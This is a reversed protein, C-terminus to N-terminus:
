AETLIDYLIFFTLRNNMLELVHFYFFLNCSRYNYINRNSLMIINLYKSPFDQKNAVVVVPVGTMDSNCLVRFLEKRSEEIREKDNCDVIYMLGPSSIVPKSQKCQAPFNYFHWPPM